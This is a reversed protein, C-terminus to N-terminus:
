TLDRFVSPQELQAFEGPYASLSNYADIKENYSTEPSGEIWSERAPPLYINKFTQINGTELIEVSIGAQDPIALVKAIYPLEPSGPSTTFSETLLDITQYTKEGTIFYKLDFGSIEIKLVTSNNDDSVLTVNPPSPSSTKNDVPMWEAWLSFPALFGLILPLFTKKLM